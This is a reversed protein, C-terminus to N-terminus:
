FNPTWTLSFFATRGLENYGIYRSNPWQGDDTLATAYNKDLLNDVKLAATLSPTVSYSVRANWLAYGAIKRTSLADDWSAGSAFISSGVSWDGMKRSLELNATKKPRRNLFGGSANDRADVYSANSHLTWQNWQQIYVIEAGTIDVAGINNPIWNEDNVIADDIETQYVSVEIHAKENLSHTLKVEVSQSEEPKLNPNDYNPYYLESFTPARFAQNYSVFVKSSEALPVAVGFNWSTFDGYQNNDDYRVGIETSFSEAKFNHQFFLADTRRETEAFATSGKLEDKHTSAGLQLEQQEFSLTNLWLLAIRDTKFFSQSASDDYLNVNDNENIGLELRTSWLSTVAWDANLGFNKLTFEDYPYAGAWGYDYETEGEQHLYSASLKFDDTFKHSGHLSISHNRYTDDDQNVLSASRSRDHGTMEESSLNLSAQTQKNQFSAGLSREWTDNSGYGVKVRSQFGPKDARRTFIQVVGGIADAGYQTSRAGRIVEIREIQDVSLTELAAAGSAASSARVGDILVLLQSSKTGRIFLGSLGGPGGSQNISVGPLTQLVEIVHTAQTRDLDDRTIVSVSSYVDSADQPLRSSTVVVNSLKIADSQTSTTQAMSPATATFATLCVLYCFSKKM